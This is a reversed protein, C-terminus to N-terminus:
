MWRNRENKRGGGSDLAGVGEVPSGYQRRVQREAETSVGATQWLYCGSCDKLVYIDSGQKFDEMPKGNGKSSFVFEKVSYSKGIDTGERRGREWTEYGRTGIKNKVYVLQTDFRLTKATRKEKTPMYIVKYTQHGSMIETEAVSSLSIKRLERALTGM